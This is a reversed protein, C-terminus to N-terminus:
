GPGVTAARALQDALESPEATPADCVHGRCVYATARGSGARGRLLAIPEQLDAPEGGVLVLSPLYRSGVCRVLESTHPDGPAGVVAVEVAGFVMGDAVGLLHGFANPYRDLLAASRRVANTAIAALRASDSLEAMRWLLEAALSTGSPTANDAVDRPRVLLAEHDSPTDFLLGSEQDLFWAVLQDALVSARAFWQRDFTLAYLDAFALGVAAQDELFGRGKAVGRSFSRAVRGERVLHSWLFEGGALAAIRDEPRELVRAAEAVARVMLGNWAGIIKDDRGPRTRTGRAGLLAARSREIIDRLRDPDIGCRVAAAAVEDPVFPINRGDFNGERTMGWYTRAVDADAGLVADLEAYEWVYFRGEEGDSDADLSSCFGGEPTRMERYAWELTAEVARRLEPDITAQWLHVGLRIFLANDYLMKEFHPVLWREDVSYRHLGGGIQDFIGGRVMARYTQVAMELAPRTNTRTAYRLLFDLAMTPPFKPAGGFGTYRPDFDRVLGRYAGELVRADLDGAATPASATTRFAERLHQATEQVSERKSKWAAAVAGLVRRFSPLGHRDDPPFYTGGYFPEGAPTLFVTMPWGGHGTLAQVAQMYISDLDPREERDVKINVFLDNMRRATEADEFSEHAMVHCWHCAAYGISLLIPKDERQARGLAEPGWPYWDVPNGAHQQLYPSTETALHNPM